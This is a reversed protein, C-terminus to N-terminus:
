NLCEFNGVGYFIIVYLGIIDGLDVGEGLRVDVM